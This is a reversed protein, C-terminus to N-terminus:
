LQAARGGWVSPTMPPPRRVQCLLAWLLSFPPPTPPMQEGLCEGRAGWDETVARGLVLRVPFLPCSGTENWSTTQTSHPWWRGRTTLRGCVNM